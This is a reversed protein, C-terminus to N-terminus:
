SNQIDLNIRLEKNMWKALKTVFENEWDILKM